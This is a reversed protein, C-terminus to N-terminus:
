ENGGRLSVEGITAEERLHIFLAPGLAASAANEFYTHSFHALRRGAHNRKYSHAALMCNTTRMRPKRIMEPEVKQRSREELKKANEATRSRDIFAAM